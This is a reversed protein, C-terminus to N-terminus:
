DQRELIAKGAGIEVLRRGGGAEDNEAAGLIPEDAGRPAGRGQVLGALAHNLGGDECPAKGLGLDSEGAAIGADEILGVALGRPRLREQGIHANRALPQDEFGIGAIGVLVRREELLLERPLPFKAGALSPEEDGRGIVHRAGHAGEALRAEIDLGPGHVVPRPPCGVERPGEVLHRFAQTTDVNGRAFPHPKKGIPQPPPAIGQKRRRQRKM